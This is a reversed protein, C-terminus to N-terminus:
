QCSSLIATDCHEIHQIIDDLGTTFDDTVSLLLLFSSSSSYDKTANMDGAKEVTGGDEITESEIYRGLTEEDFGLACEDLIAHLWASCSADEMSDFTRGNSANKEEDDDNEFNERPRQTADYRTSDVKRNFLNVQGNNEQLERFSFFLAQPSQSPSLSPAPSPLVFSSTSQGTGVM